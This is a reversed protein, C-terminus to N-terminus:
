RRGGVKKGRGIHVALWISKGHGDTWEVRHKKHLPIYLYDGPRLSVPEDDGEFLVGANGQLLVVWEDWDQDYWQGAPTSQGDSVIREIIVDDRRLLAEFVETPCEDPLDHFLSNAKMM